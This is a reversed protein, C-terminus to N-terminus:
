KKVKATKGTAAGDPEIPADAETPADAEGEEAENRYYGGEADWEYTKSGMVEDSADKVTSKCPLGEASAM